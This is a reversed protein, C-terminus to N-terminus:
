DEFYDFVAQVFVATGKYLVDDNVVFKSNHAPYRVGDTYPATCCLNFFCGPVLQYFFGADEGGM